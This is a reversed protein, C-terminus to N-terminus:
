GVTLFVRFCLSIYRENSEMQAFHVDASLASGVVRQRRRMAAGILGFGAMLM